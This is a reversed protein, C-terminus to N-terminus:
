WFRLLPSKYEIFDAYFPLGNLVVSFSLLLSIITTLVLLFYKSSLRDTIIRYGLFAAILMLPLFDMYYRAISAITASLPIIQLAIAILFINFSAKETKERHRVFIPIVAFVLIPMLVFVSVSLENV